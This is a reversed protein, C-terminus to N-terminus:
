KVEDIIALLEKQAKTATNTLDPNIDDVLQALSNLTIHTKGDKTYVAIKCPLICSLSIDSNLFEEAFTPNCIDVIQCEEDLKKGKTHLTEQLNHVYQVGFSYKSAIEQISNVIEQVSKSSIEIYQM